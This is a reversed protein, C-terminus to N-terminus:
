KKESFNLYYTMRKQKTATYEVTIPATYHEDDEFQKSKNINRYVMISVKKLALLSKGPSALLQLSPRITM